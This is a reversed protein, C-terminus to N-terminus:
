LKIQMGDELIKLPLKKSLSDLDAVVEKRCFPKLHTVYIEVDMRNLKSLERAMLDPTLHKTIRAMEELRNPFSAEIIIARLRENNQIKEWFSNTLYTDGTFAFATKGDDVLYGVSPVTHNVPIPLVTYSGIKLNELPKLTKYSLKAEKPNPIRSFDPWITGNLLHSSIDEIAEKIGYLFIPEKRLDFVAEVLFPLDCIHDIHAHTILINDIRACDELSLVESATGSDLLLSEDILFATPRSDIGRSGGCGLIFIRM